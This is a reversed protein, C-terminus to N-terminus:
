FPPKVVPRPPEHRGAGGGEPYDALSEGARTWAPAMGALLGTAVAVTLTFLLVRPNVSSAPWAVQPLFATRVLQGGWYAMALGVVGGLGALVTSELFLQGVLRQRPIGLAVRIGLERRRRAGRALLLNAVNACAILLVIFTVGVLWRSM